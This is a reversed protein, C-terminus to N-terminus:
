KLISYGFFSRDSLAHGDGPIGNWAVNHMYAKFSPFVEMCASGGAAWTVFGWELDWFANESGAFDEVTHRVSIKTREDYDQSSLIKRVRDKVENMKSPPILWQNDIDETGIEIAKGVQVWDCNGEGDYTQIAMTLNGPIDLPLDTFYEEDDNFWRLESLSHLPPECLIGSFAAGFGDTISVFEKYDEPFQVGLRAESEKIELETAPDRFWTQDTPSDKDLGSEDHELHNKTNEEITNLIELMPRNTRSQRGNKFREDITEQVECAFIDVRRTDIRATKALAGKMLISWSHQSQTLNQIQQNANLRKGILALLYDVSPLAQRDDSKGAHAGLQLRLDLAHVLGSSVDMALAGTEADKHEKPTMREIAAMIQTIIETPIKAPEAREQDTMQKGLGYRQKRDPRYWSKKWNEALTDIEAKLEEKSMTQELEAETRAQKGVRETSGSESKGRTTKRRKEKAMHRAREEEHDPWSDTMDWLLYLPRLVVHQGHFYDYTNMSSVMNRAVDAYGLIAFQMALQGVLHFLKANDYQLLKLRLTLPLETM